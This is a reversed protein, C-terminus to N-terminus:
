WSDMKSSRLELYLTNHLWWLCNHAAREGIEEQRWSFLVTEVVMLLNEMKLKVYIPGCLIDDKTSPETQEVNHKRNM